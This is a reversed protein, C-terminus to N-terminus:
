RVLCRIELATALSTRRSAAFITQFLKQHIQAPKLDIHTDSPALGRKAFVTDSRALPGPTDFPLKGGPQLTLEIV